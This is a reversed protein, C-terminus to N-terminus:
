WREVMRELEEPTETSIGQAKCADVVVNILKSMQATDYVSSGYFLKVNTCNPIKSDFTETLWGLGNHSWNRLLSPLADNTVCVVDYNGGIDRISERYIDVPSENLKAGLKGLLVWCYANADLSRKPHYEKIEVSVVDKAMLEDLEEPSARFDLAVTLKLKGSKYDISTDLIKGQSRM